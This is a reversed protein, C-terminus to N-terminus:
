ATRRAELEAVFRTHEPSQLGLQVTALLAKADHRLAATRDLWLGPFVDSRVIGAADPLLPVFAGDRLVFWDIAEDHTRWVLYERVGCRAYARFKPGLDRSVSSGAVEIILDPAEELYDDASIRVQGGYEPRIILVSDPQPENTLDLRVTANAAGDVGPTHAVYFGSWGILRSAPYGHANFGRPSAFHVVGEILEVRIHKPMAHYRREFEDRSLVQGEELLPIQSKWVDSMTTATGM